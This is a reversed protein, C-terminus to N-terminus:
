AADKRQFIWRTIVYLLSCSLTLTLIGHLYTYSSYGSLIEVPNFYTFPLWAFWAEMNQPQAIGMGLLLIALTLVLSVMKNQCIVNFLLNLLMCFAIVLLAMVIVYGTFQWMPMLDFKTNPSQVHYPISFYRTIGLTYTMANNEETETLTNEMQELSTLGHVNTLVPAQVRDYHDFMAFCLSLLLLPVLFIATLAAMNSRMKQHLYHIRKRPQSLLTKLVGSDKDEHITDFCLLTILIVPLIPFLSRIFQVILTSSDTTSYTLTDIHQKELQDYFRATFQYYPFMQTEDGMMFENAWDAAIESDTFEPLGREKRLTQLTDEQTIYDHYYLDYNRTKYLASVRRAQLLNVEAFSKNVNKWDKKQIAAKLEESKKSLTTFYGATEDSMLLFLQNKVKNEAELANVYLDRHELAAKENLDVATLIGCLLVCLMAIWLKRKRLLKKIELMM